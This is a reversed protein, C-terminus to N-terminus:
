KNQSNGDPEVALVRLSQRLFWTEINRFVLSIRLGYFQFMKGVAWCKQSNGDPEVALVRLSQRLFPREMQGSEPSLDLFQYHGFKELKRVYGLVRFNFCKELQGVNEDIASMVWQRFGILGCTDCCM